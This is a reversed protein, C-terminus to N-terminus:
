ARAGNDGAANWTRASAVAETYTPATDLMIEQMSTSSGSAQFKITYSTVGMGTLNWQAATRNVTGGFSSGSSKYETIFNAPAIEIGGPKQLFTVGAIGGPNIDPTSDSLLSPGDEFVDWGYYTTNAGGRTWADPAALALLILRKM